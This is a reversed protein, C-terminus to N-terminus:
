YRPDRDRPPHPAERRAPRDTSAFLFILSFVLGIIGVIMLILGVTQINVGHVHATIAYRLVAGGAILALSTGVAVPRSYGPVGVRVGAGREPTNATLPWLRSAPVLLMRRM